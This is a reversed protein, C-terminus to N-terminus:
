LRIIYEEKNETFYLNTNFIGENVQIKVTKNLAIISRSFSRPLNAKKIRVERNVPDIKIGLIFRDLIYPILGISWAQSPCGEPKGDPQIIENIRSSCQLELNSELIQFCRESLEKDLKYSVGACIETLLPWIAGNHYGNFNFTKDSKSVSLIGNETLLNSKVNEIITRLSDDDIENFYPLFLQNASNIDKYLQDSFFKEKKYRAINQNLENAISDIWGYGLDFKKSLESLKSLASAWMAQIEISFERDISDMWTQRGKDHILGNEINSKMSSLILDIKDKMELIFNKDEDRCEIEYLDILFLAPTDLPYLNSNEVNPLGEKTIYKSINSIVQKAFQVQNISLYSPLLILADRIWFENFYPFGAYIKKEINDSYSFLADIVSKMFDKSINPLEFLGATMNILESYEKVSNLRNNILKYVTEEDLDKYSLILILNENANIKSNIMGPVFKNQPSLDDFYRSFGKEKAYLGPKHIGYYVNKNFEGNSFFIFATKNNISALIKNNHSNIDYIKSLVYNETRDRINIGIETQIIANFTPKIAIVVGNNTCSIEETVIGDNTKFTYREFQSNYFEFNKINDKSLFEDNVKIAFYDFYKTKGKWIGCWKSGFEGDNFRFLFTGDKSLVNVLAM